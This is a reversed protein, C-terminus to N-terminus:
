IKNGFGALVNQNDEYNSGIIKLRKNGNSTSIMDTVGDLVRLLM